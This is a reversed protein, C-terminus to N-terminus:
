SAKTEDNSCVLNIENVVSEVVRLRESFLHSYDSFIASLKSQSNVYEKAFDLNPQFRQISEISEYEDLGYLNVYSAESILRNAKHSSGAFYVPVAQIAFADFLKESIYLDQHTNELASMLFVNQDLSVLKDLHWDDLSQRFQNTDWGLGTILSGSADLKFESIVTRFKSLGHVDCDLFSVEFQDEMRRKAMSAFPYQCTQWQKLYQEPEILANRKFLVSYRAFFYNETTIFYPINRFEFISSTLHNLFIYEVIQGEYELQNQRLRFDGSWLTDWLPEESVVVLKLNPNFSKALFYQDAIESFDRIWALVIVDAEEIGSVFNLYNKFLPQYVEYGM